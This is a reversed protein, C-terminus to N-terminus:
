VRFFGACCFFWKVEQKFYKKGDREEVTFTSCTGVVRAGEDCCLIEAGQKAEASNKRLLEAEVALAEEEEERLM